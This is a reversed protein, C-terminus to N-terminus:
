TALRDDRGARDAGPAVIVAAAVTRSLVDLDFPKRLYDFAGRTLTGRAVDVDTNATLIIVPIDHHDRRLRDLVQVGSMGPMQLDLLIADPQFVPVLQLAEDGRIATKVTYGLEGLLERLLQGVQPEDDVVLVRGLALVM